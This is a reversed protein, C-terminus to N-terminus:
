VDQRGKIDFFIILQSKVKSKVQRARQPRPSNACKREFVQTREEGLAQRIM